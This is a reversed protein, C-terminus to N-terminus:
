TLSLMNSPFSAFPDADLHYLGGLVCTGIFFVPMWDHVSVPSSVERLVNLRLMYFLSLFQHFTRRAPCSTEYLLHLSHFRSPHTRFGDNLVRNDPLSSKPVFFGWFSGAFWLCVFDM